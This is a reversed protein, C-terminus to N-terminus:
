AKRSLIKVLGKSDAKFFALYREFSDGFEVRLAPSQEWERKAAQILGLSDGPHPEEAPLPAPRRIGHAEDYESMRRRFEAREAETMAM